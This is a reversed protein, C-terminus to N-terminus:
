PGTEPSFLADPIGADITYAKMVTEAIKMGGAYNAIRFPFMTNGVKRFDSFASSLTTARGEAVVFLGTVKVIFFTKADVFVDMPPGEQDALHLVEVRNGDLEEPGTRSVSYLGKVLGYLIDFHKYQYVMALFRQDEVQVLPTEDTGRYGIGNNLIRIEFSRQYRTEVRLKRPRKFYLEYSGQDHRMIATIDGAAHVATTGVVAKEGGYAAITKAILAKVDGSPGHADAAFATHVRVAACFFVLLVIFGRKM